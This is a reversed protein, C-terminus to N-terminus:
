QAPCHFPGLSPEATIFGPGEESSPASSLLSVASAEMQNRVGSHEAMDERKMGAWFVAVDTLDEPDRGVAQGALLAQTCLAVSEVVGVGAPGVVAAGGHRRRQM